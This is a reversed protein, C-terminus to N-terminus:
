EVRIEVTNSVVGSARVLVGTVGRGRLSEPVAVNIQDLGVFQGQPGAYLAPLELGGIAVTVGGAGRVGTAYLSLYVTGEGLSISEPVCRGAECRFVPVVSRTGDDAVRVATAAAVGVGNANAAFLDPAARAVELTGESRTSDTRSITVQARGTLTGGPVQFNVQGPSVFFLGAVRTTGGEDTVTVRTGALELPLPLTRAGTTATALGEGFASAISEPAVAVRRFSGGPVTSVAPGVARCAGSTDLYMAESVRLSFEASVKGPSAPSDFGIPGRWETQGPVCGFVGCRMALPILPFYLTQVLDDGDVPDLEYLSLFNNGMDFSRVEACGGTESVGGPTSARPCAVRVDVTRTGHTNEGTTSVQATCDKDNYLTCNPARFEDIDTCSNWEYWGDRCETRCNGKNDCIRTEHCWGQFQHGNEKQGFNSTVGWNGFPASHIPHPCEAHIPGDVRRNRTLGSTTIRCVQGSLGMALM